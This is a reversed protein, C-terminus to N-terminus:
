RSRYQRIDEYAAQAYDFCVGYFTATKTEDGSLKALFERIDGPKYYDQPDGLTYDGTQALNYQCVCATQLTLWQLEAALTNGAPAFKDAAFSFVPSVLLL